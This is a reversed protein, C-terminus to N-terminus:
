SGVITGDVVYIPGNDELTQGGRVRFGGQDDLKAASQGRFQTGVVKGALANNINSQPIIKLQEETIVQASFPTVRASKKIGFASTVVVESMAGVVPTITVNVVDSTGIVVEKTDFGVSSIVLTSGSPVNKLFFKGDADANAGINAGKITVSAFPVPKGTADTVVGSISRNQAFVLMSCLIAMVFLSAFKRM